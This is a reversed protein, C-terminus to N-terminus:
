ISVPMKGFVHHARELAIQIMFGRTKQDPSELAIGVERQLLECCDSWVFL